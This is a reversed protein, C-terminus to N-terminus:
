EWWNVDGRLVDLSKLKARLLRAPEVDTFQRPDPGSDKKRTLYEIRRHLLKFEIEDELSYTYTM